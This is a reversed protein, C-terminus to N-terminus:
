RPDAVFGAVADMRPMKQKGDSPPPMSSATSVVSEQSAVPTFDIGEAEVEEDDELDSRSSKGHRRMRRSPVRRIAATAVHTARQNAKKERRDMDEAVLKTAQTKMEDPVEADCIIAAAYLNKILNSLPEIDRRHKKAFAEYAQEPDLDTRWEQLGKDYFLMILRQVLGVALDIEGQVMKVLLIVQGFGHMGFAFKMQTTKNATTGQYVANGADWGELFLRAESVSAKTLWRQVVTILEVPFLGMMNLLPNEGLLKYVASASMDGTLWDIAGDKTQEVLQKVYDRLTPFKSSAFTQIVNKASEPGTTKAKLSKGTASKAFTAQFTFGYREKFTNDSLMKRLKRKKALLPIMALTGQLFGNIPFDVMAAAHRVVEVLPGEMGDLMATIEPELKRLADFVRQEKDAESVVSQISFGSAESVRSEVPIATDQEATKIRM